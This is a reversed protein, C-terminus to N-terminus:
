PRRVAALMAAVKADFAKPDCDDAIRALAGARVATWHVPDAYLRQVAAAFEEAGEGVALAAGEAWGLQRALLPTAAVPLGAAAAAHVKMPVGAAFRTPAIFVRAADYLPRLDGVPGLLVVRDSALARVSPAGVRGAVRLKWADGIRADLRPMVERVFFVLSDANPGEDEDLAGVFLLDRRGAFDAPTPDATVAHGVVDVRPCGAERFAQAELENVAFVAGVGAALAVEAEVAGAPPRAQRLAFIAEADYIVQEPSIFGPVQALAKRFTAMNHPRSVLVADYYGARERLFEVLGEAGREAAFEVEPSVVRYATEYDVGPQVLPYFTAFWGAGSAAALIDRARPYGAGLHPYPVRDEIVLVRGRQAGRMRALLPPAGLAAHEAELAPGHRAVFVERHAQQLAIAAESGTSSGFEFHSVLVRPEFGVRLGAARIRMCLDTEEYYAPAFAEDFGGLRRWVDRRIMLFAGSAYDVDRRFQFEPDWPDAGRGYGTATGDRWIISGAEQLVGDLLEIRGGVAALDAEQELRGVAAAISGPWVRTDNNLLLIHRGRALEAAANVGRVFHLNSANSVVRAGDLRGLLEATRDSSANDAIIVECPTDLAFVLSRLCAFTLEVQNFLVLVISVVPEDSTPLSLREGSALFDDLEQRCLNKFAAKSPAGGNRPPRGPLLLTRGYDTVARELQRPLDARFFVEEESPTTEQGARAWRLGAAECAFFVLRRLAADSASAAFATLPQLAAGRAWFMGGAPMDIPSDAYLAFGLREAIARAETYAEGWALEARAPAATRPALLGLQPLQRFAELAGRVVAPSGLLSAMCLQRVPASSGTRLVLVHDYAAAEPFAALAAALGHRGGARRIEAAGQTWAQTQAVVAAGLDSCVLLDASMDLQSLASWIEDLGGEDEITLLVAVRGADPEGPVYGLPLRLVPEGVSGPAKPRPTADPGSLRHMLRILPRGLTRLVARTMPRDLVAGRVGYVLRVLLQVPTARSAAASPMLAKVM